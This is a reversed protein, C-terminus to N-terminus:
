HIISVYGFIKWLFDLLAVTSSWDALMCGFCCWFWFSGLGGSGGFSEGDGGRSVSFSLHSSSIWFNGVVTSSPLFLNKLWFKRLFSPIIRDDFWFFFDVLVIHILWVGLCRSMGQGAEWYDMNTFFWTLCARVLGDDHFWELEGIPVYQGRMFSELGVM